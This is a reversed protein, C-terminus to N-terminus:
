LFMSIGKSRPRGHEIRKQMEESVLDKITQILESNDGTLHSKVLTSNYNPANEFM